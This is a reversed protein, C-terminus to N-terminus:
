FRKFVFCVAAASWGDAEDKDIEKFHEDFHIKKINIVKQASQKIEQLLNNINKKSSFNAFFAILGYEFEKNYELLQCIRVIDDNLPDTYKDIKNKVEIMVCSKGTNTDDLVIDIRGDRDVNKTSIYQAVSVEFWIEPKKELKSIQEAICINLMYEPAMSLWAKKNTWLYFKKHANEIGNLVADIVNKEPFTIM